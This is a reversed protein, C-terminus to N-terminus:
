QTLRCLNPLNEADLDAWHTVGIGLTQRDTLDIVVSYEDNSGLHFRTESIRAGKIWVGRGGYACSECFVM